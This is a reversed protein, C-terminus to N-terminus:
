ALLWMAGAVALTIAIFATTLWWLGRVGAPNVTHEDLRKRVQSARLYAGVFIAIGLAFFMSAILKGVWDPDFSRTLANFGLGLGISGFGTRMWGAYTRENALLTRDEALDTREQGPNKADESM